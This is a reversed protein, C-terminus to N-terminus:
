LEEALQLFTQENQTEVEYEYQRANELGIDELERPLVWSGLMEYVRATFQEQADSGDKYLFVDTSFPRYTSRHLVQRNETIIMATM